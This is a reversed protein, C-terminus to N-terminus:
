PSRFTEVGESAVTLNPSQALQIVARVINRLFGMPKEVQLAATLSLSELTTIPLRHLYSLSSYGTALKRTPQPPIPKRCSRFGKDCCPAGNRAGNAPVEPYLWSPPRLRWRM